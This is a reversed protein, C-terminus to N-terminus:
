SGASGPVDGVAIAEGSQLSLNAALATALVWRVQTASISPERRHQCCDVFHALEDSLSRDDADALLRAGGRGIYLGDDPLAWQAQGRTGLLFAAQYSANAAPLNLHLEILANSGNACRIGIQLSDYVELEPSALNAGQAYVREPASDLLWLALDIGHVGLHLAMGGSRAPQTQWARWGGPWARASDSVWNFYVPQGVDGERAARHLAQPVKQFRLSQGVILLTGAAAAAGQMENLERLSLAVPKEVLVHKGANTAALTLTHHTDTPTALIVGDIDARSCMADVSTTGAGFSRALREARKANVDAVAVLRATPVRCLAEAHRTGFDGCGIIALNFLRSVVRKERRNRM